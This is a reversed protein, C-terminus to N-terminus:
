GKRWKNGLVIGEAIIPTGYFDIFMIQGLEEAIREALEEPVNLIWEDHIPLWLWDGYGAEIIKVGGIVFLDRATSQIMYNIATYPRTEDVPLERGFPTTITKKRALLKAYADLKPYTNKFLKMSEKAQGVTIDAMLSLKGPGGGYIIAYGCNKAITRQDHTVDDLAVQWLDRAVAKHIDLGDRMAQVMSTEEALTAIVRQEIQAYDAGVLLHGPDAILCNRIDVTEIM